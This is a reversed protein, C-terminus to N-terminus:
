VGWFDAYGLGEEFDEKMEDFAWWTGLVNQCYAWKRIDLATMGFAEAYLDVARFLRKKADPEEDIEWLHNNLFVSVEYGLPGILGKPDIALYPERKASLINEHHLDGHLLYDKTGKGSLEEYFRLAKEAYIKPFVSREASELGSFWDHLFMFEDANEPVDRLTREIMSPFINLAGDEDHRFIRRLTEGPIAREILIAPLAHNAALLRVAGHGDLLRLYEMEGFMEPDDLPLAIKLVAPMNDNTKASAVYNFSLKSFYKGAVINWDSELRDIVDPLDALWAKGKEGCLSIVNKVFASPM